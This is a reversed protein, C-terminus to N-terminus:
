CSLLGLSYLKDYVWHHRIYTRSIRCMEHQSPVSGLSRQRLREMERRGVTHLLRLTKQNDLVRFAGLFRPLRAFRLGADRFRLILDWDMAYQFSVDIHSGVKEWASRRWFMTEQPIFDAWSLLQDNHPPLVWRGVQLDNADILIRHGYVIDVDPHDQFYCAVYALSGPLLLDDANLYALIQGTARQMGLNIAHAQGGDPASQWHALRDAYRRIVKVSQDTSGGDQLIYELHPYNQGLVSQITRELFGGLNLNPTVLSIVPPDAPPQCCRYSNSLAIKRPAHNWLKFIKSRVYTRLFRQVFHKPRLPGACTASEKGSRANWEAVAHLALMQPVALVSSWTRGNWRCEASMAFRLARFDRTAAPKGLGRRRAALHGLRMTWRSSAHGFKKALVQINERLELVAEADTAAYSTGEVLRGTTLRVAAVSRELRAFRIGAAALRLWYEYDFSRKLREDLLGCRDLARRRLFVAPQCLFCRRRLRRIQWDKTRYPGIVHDMEDIYNGDGYVVDVDPHTEFYQRVLHIAGPYHIADSNLWSLVDGRAGRLGKNIAHAPGRDAQSSWRFKAAHRRLVQLTEDRSGGDVIIHETCEDEQTAVSDIARGIFRGTNLSPTIISFKLMRCCAGQQMRSIAGAAMGYWYQFATSDPLGTVAPHLVTFSKRIAFGQHM